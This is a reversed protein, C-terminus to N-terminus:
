LGEEVKFLLQIEFNNASLIVDCKGGNKSVLERINNIGIKTGKTEKLSAAITNKFSVGVFTGQRIMKIEVPKKLDAYKFLNSIINNIIRNIDEIHLAVREQPWVINSQVHFGRQVLCEAAASIVDFFIDKFTGEQREKTSNETKELSHEFITDALYKIQRVKDEIRNVYKSLEAEDKYKKHKIADSYIMLTTLPTRIDHSMDSLMRNNLKRLQEETEIQNLFSKRMSELSAALGALENNGQVPVPYELNGGELIDIGTKLENIYQIKKRIRQLVIIMFVAFCTVLEVALAYYYFQYTFNGNLFVQADSDVFTIEYWNKQFIYDGTAVKGNVPEKSSYIWLHEKFVEFFLIKQKKAWDDLAKKDTSKVSNEEIYKQLKEVYSANRRDVYKSDSLYSHIIHNGLANLVFFLVASVCLACLILAAQQSSLSDRNKILRIM